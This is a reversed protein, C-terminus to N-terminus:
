SWMLPIVSLEVGLTESSNKNVKVFGEILKHAEEIRNQVKLLRVKSLIVSPSSLLESDDIELFFSKILGLRTEYDIKLSDKGTFDEDLSEFIFSAYM